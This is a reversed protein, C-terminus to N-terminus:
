RIVPKSVGSVSQTRSRECRQMQQSTEDAIRQLRATGEIKYAAKQIRKSQSRVESAALAFGRVAGGAGSAQIAWNLALLHPQAAVYQIVELV